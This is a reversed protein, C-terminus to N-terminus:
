RRRLLRAPFARLWFLAGVLPMEALTVDWVARYVVNPAARVTTAHREYVHFDPLFRDLARM